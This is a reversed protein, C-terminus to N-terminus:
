SSYVIPVSFKIRSTTSNLNQDSNSISGGLVKIIQVAGSKDKTKTSGVTVAIDLDINHIKRNEAVTQKDTEAMAMVSKTANIIADCEKNEALTKKADDVGEIISRLTYSVFNKLEM